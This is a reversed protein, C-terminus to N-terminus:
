QWDTGLIEGGAKTSLAQYTLQTISSTIFHVSGDCFAFNCGATHLSRFGSVTDMTAGGTAIWGTPGNPNNGPNDPIGTMVAGTHDISAMALKNNMPEPNDLGAASPLWGAAQATVGFTCGFLDKSTIAIGYDEVVPIGWTQDIPITTGNFGIYPTVDTYNFRALYTQSHGAGEGFMLTNSTGDTISAITTNSMIDFVGQANTPISGSNQDLYANSGKSLLYDLCGGNPSSAPPAAPFFAEWAPTIAAQGQSRNSPCLFLKVQSQLGYYNPSGPPTATMYQLAGADPNSAWTSYGPAWYWAASPVMLNGLNGQEIYPLLMTFATNDNPNSLIVDNGTTVTARGPPFRQYASEYNMVSLALQKLNNQCSMRNAAERVKQVAPLLLGVLVAIIAIVVLLEILTFGRRVRYM